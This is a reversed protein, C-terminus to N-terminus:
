RLGLAEAECPRRLSAQTDREEPCETSCWQSDDCLAGTKSQRGVVSVSMRQPDPILNQESGVQINIEM